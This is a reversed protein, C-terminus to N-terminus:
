PAEQVVVHIRDAALGYLAQIRGDPWRIEAKEARTAPGLGFHARPDGQSLYGNGPTVEQVRIGGGATLTIRAGTATRRGGPLRADIKIWHNGSGGENRLLHPPGNLDSVVLDLNGDNDFDAWTSGRAVYKRQFYEGSQRAVDFFRGKGDGRALVQSEPYEHHAGGNSVFLDLHGDNDADFLIGGWGTYQGLIVALGSVEVDDAFVKGKRVLLTGYDMDPIFLDLLGDENVDGVVPGM